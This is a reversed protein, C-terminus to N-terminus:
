TEKYKPDICIEWFSLPGWSSLAILDLLCPLPAPVYVAPQNTKRRKESTDCHTYSTNDELVWSGLLVRLVRNEIGSDPSKPRSCDM